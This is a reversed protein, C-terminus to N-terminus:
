SYIHKIISRPRQKSETHISALYIGLLGSCSIICSSLILAALLLASATTLPHNFVWCDVALYIAILLSGLSMACGLLFLYELPKASFATISTLVLQLQKVLTYTTTPKSLKHVIHSQQKFGAHAMIGAAFLKREPYNKLSSVFAQRMLRVTLVNPAIKIDSLANFLSYFLQGSHQEFWNGKRTEQVGYLVDIEPQATMTQWFELLLEPAEELDCDILFVWEGQAHQLGQMGAEHHGFNRSLDIIKIAPYQQQLQLALELSHDPSGDNVLLLEYHPTLQAASSCARQCFEELYPASQYLTSVISLQM